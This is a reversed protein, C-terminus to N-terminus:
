INFYGMSLLEEKLEPSIGEWIEADDDSECAVLANTEEELTMIYGPDRSEDYVEDLHRFIDEIKM